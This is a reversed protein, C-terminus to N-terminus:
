KLHGNFSLLRDPHMFVVKFDGFEESIEEVMAIWPLRDYRCCVYNKVKIDVSDQSSKEIVQDIDAIQVITPPTSQYSTKFAKLTTKLAPVFRHYQLTGPIRRAIELQACLEKESVVVEEEGVHLFHIGSINQLCWDFM